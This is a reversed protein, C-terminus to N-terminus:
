RQTELYRRYVGTLEGPATGFRSSRKIIEQVDRSGISGYLGPMHRRWNQLFYEPGRLAILRQREEEAGALDGNAIYSEWRDWAHNSAEGTLRQERRINVLQAQVTPEYTRLGALNALVTRTANAELEEGTFGSKTGRVAELLNTGAYAPPVVPPLMMRMMHEALGFVKRPAGESVPAGLQTETFRPEIPRKSFPDVGTGAAAILNFVPNTTPNFMGLPVPAGFFSSEAMSADNGLDAMPIIYSLDIFHPKEDADLWPFLLMKKQHTHWPLAQRAQEMDESSLGVAAAATQSGVEAIHNWYFAMHPKAAMANKWVRLGELTFSVFPIHPRVQHLLDSGQQYNPFYRQVELFAKDAAEQMSYMGQGNKYFRNRLTTYSDLKWVDDIASYFKRVAQDGRKMYEVVEDNHLLRRMVRWDFTEAKESGLARQVLEVVEADTSTGLGGRTTFEALEEQHGKGRFAKLGKGPYFKIGGRAGAAFSWFMINGFYNRAVTAPNYATHAVKFRGQLSYYLHSFFNDSGGDTKFIGAVDEAIAPDLNQDLLERPVKQLFTALREREEMETMQRGVKDLKQSVRDRDRAMRTALWDTFDRTRGGEAALAAERERIREMKLSSRHKRGGRRVNLKAPQKRTYYAPQELRWEEALKQEYKSQGLDEVRKVQRAGREGVQTALRDLQQSQKAIQRHTARLRDLRRSPRFDTQGPAIQKVKMTWGAAQAAELSGFKAVLADDTQAGVSRAVALVYKQRALVTASEWHKHALFIPDFIQTLDSTDGVGKAKFADEGEKAYRRGRSGVFDGRDKMDKRFEEYATRRYESGRGTKALTAEDLLYSNAYEIQMRDRFDKEVELAKQADKGLLGKWTDWHEQTVGERKAPDVRLLTDVLQEEEPTMDAKKYARIIDDTQSGLLALEADYERQLGKVVWALDPDDHGFRRMIEDIRGAEDMSTVPSATLRGLRTRPGLKGRLRVAERFGVPEGMSASPVFGRSLSEEAVETMRRGAKYARGAVTSGRAVSIAATGWKAVPFGLTIHDIATWFPHEDYAQKINDLDWGWEGSGEDRAFGYSKVLEQLIGNGYDEEDGESAYRELASVM